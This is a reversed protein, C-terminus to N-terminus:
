SVHTHFAPDHNLRARLASARAPGIAVPPSLVVAFIRVEFVVRAFANRRILAECSISPYVTEMRANLARKTLEIHSVSCSQHQVRYGAISWVVKNDGRGHATSRILLLPRFGAALM